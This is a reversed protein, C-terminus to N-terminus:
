AQELLGQVAEPRGLVGQGAETHLHARPVIPARARVRPGAHREQAPQPGGHLLLPPGPDSQYLRGTCRHTQPHHFPSPHCNSYAFPLPPFFLLHLATINPTLRFCCWLLVPTKLHAPHLAILLSSM